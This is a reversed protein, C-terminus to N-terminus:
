RIGGATPTVSLERLRAQKAQMAKNAPELRLAEDYSQSALRVLVDGLNQRALAYGPHTRIAMELLTRAREFQQKRAYLVALNNYPEPLEPYDDSIQTFVAIADDSRDMEMLILGKLFRGQLERPKGAVHAELKALAQPAQGQKLLREAEALESAVATPVVVGLLLALVTAPLTPPLLRPVISRM